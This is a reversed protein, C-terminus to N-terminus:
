RAIAAASASPIYAAEVVAVAEARFMSSPSRARPAASDPSRQILQRNVFIARGLVGIPLMVALTAVESQGLMRVDIAFSKFKMSAVLSRGHVNSLPVFESFVADIPTSSVEALAFPALNWIEM